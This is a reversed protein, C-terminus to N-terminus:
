PSDYSVVKTSANQSEKPCDNLNAQSGMYVTKKYIIKIHRNKRTYAGELEYLASIINQNM